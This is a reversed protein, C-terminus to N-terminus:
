YLEFLPLIFCGFGLSVPYRKEDFSLFCEVPHLCEPIGRALQLECSTFSQNLGFSFPVRM